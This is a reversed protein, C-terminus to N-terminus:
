TERSKEMEDKLRLHSGYLKLSGFFEPWKERPKFGIAVEVDDIADETMILFDGYKKSKEFQEDSVICTVKRFHKSQVWEQMVPDDKFKLFTALSTHGIANAGLGIPISSKVLIYMKLKQESM